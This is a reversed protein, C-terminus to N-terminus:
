SFSLNGLPGPTIQYLRMKDKIHGSTAARLAGTLRHIGQTEVVVLCVLNARVLSYCHPYLM